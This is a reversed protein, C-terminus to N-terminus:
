GGLAGDVLRDFGVWLFWATGWGCLLVGIWASDVTAGVYLNCFFLACFTAVFAPLFHAFVLGFLGVVWQNDVM